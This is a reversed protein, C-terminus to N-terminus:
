PNECMNLKRSRGSVRPSQAKRDGLIVYLGIVQKSGYFNFLLLPHQKEPPLKSLWSAISWTKNGDGMIIPLGPHPEWHSSPIRSHSFTSCSVGLSRHYTTHALFSGINRYAMSIQSSNTVAAWGSGYLRKYLSVSIVGLFFKDCHRTDLLCKM